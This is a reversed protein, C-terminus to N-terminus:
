KREKTDPLAPELLQIAQNLARVYELASKETLAPDSLASESSRVFSVVPDPLVAGRNAMADVIDGASSTGRVGLCRAAVQRLRQFAVEVAVQPRRSRQFINGLTEVFELPSLRSKEKLPVLPGSRRSYTFVVAFAIFALQALAWRYAVMSKESSEESRETHYYEDWLVHHYGSVSNLLLELNNKERIGANELPWASAWWLVSGQGIRYSVVVPKGNDDLFHVLQATREDDWIYYGDVSISGGRTLRTPAAPKCEVSGIRAHDTVNAASNPVIGDPSGAILVTGGRALFRALDGKETLSPYSEPGAIILLTNKAESPLEKPPREWREIPYGSQQLLLYAAKAGRRLNSYSSPSGEGKQEQSNLYAVAIMLLLLLSGLLIATRNERIMGPM